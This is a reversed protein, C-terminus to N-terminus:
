KPMMGMYMWSILGGEMEPGNPVSVCSCCM